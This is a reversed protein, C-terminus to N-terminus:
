KYTIEEFVWNDLGYSVAKVNDTAGNKTTRVHIGVAIGDEYRGRYTTGPADEGFSFVGGNGHMKDYQWPGEYVNGNPWEYQGHGQRQDLHIEGEYVADACFEVRGYRHLVNNKWYGEYRRERHPRVDALGCDLDIVEMELEHIVNSLVFLLNIRFKGCWSYTAIGYGNRKGRQFQGIYVHGEPDNETGNGSQMGNRWRGKYDYGTRLNEVQGQGEMEGDAWDGIFVLLGGDKNSRVFAKGFGDALGNKLKGTYNVVSGWNEIFNDSLHPGAFIM